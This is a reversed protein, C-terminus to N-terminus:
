ARAEEKRKLMWATKTYFKFDLQSNEPDLDLRVTIPVIKDEEIHDYEYSIDFINNTDEVVKLQELVVM